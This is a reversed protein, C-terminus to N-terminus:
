KGFYKFAFIFLFLLSTGILTSGANFNVGRCLTLVFLFFWSHKGKKMFDAINGSVATLLIQSSSMSGFIRTARLPWSIIIFLLRFQDALILFCLHMLLEIIHGQFICNWFHFALWVQLFFSVLDFLDIFLESLNYLMSYINFLM